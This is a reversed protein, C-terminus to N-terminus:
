EIVEKLELSEENEISLQQILKNKINDSRRNGYIRACFSTIISIFDQILDNKNEVENIITIKKDQLDCLMKIYNFGFRTLRDKYEIIIENYEKNLLISNLGKRNDNLGSGIEKISRYIIKGHVDAYNELRKSQRELDDKQQHSSVRAYLVCKDPLSDNIPDPVIVTGSELKYAGKIKDAKFHNWATQYSIGHKKAYENLRM